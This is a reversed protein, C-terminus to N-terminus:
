VPGKAYNLFNAMDVRRVVCPPYFILPIAEDPDEGHGLTSLRINLPDNFACRGIKSLTEFGRFVDKIMGM